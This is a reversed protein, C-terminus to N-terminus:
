RIIAMPANTTQFRSVLRLGGLHGSSLDLVGGHREAIKEMIALGLGSSNPREEDQLAFRRFTPTGEGLLQSPLGPGGDEITLEVGNPLQRVSVEVPSNSPTYKIINSIANNCYVKLLEPSLAARQSQEDIFQISRQPNLERLNALVPEIIERVFISSIEFDKIEGLRALQLLDDILKQMSLSSETAREVARRDQASDLNPSKALIELYGRIVTLPTRLEHSADSVFAQLEAKSNQLKEVMSALSDALVRIEDSANGASLRANEGQAVRSATATLASLERLDKRILRWGVAGSGTAALMVFLAVLAISLRMSDSIESTSVQFILIEGFGLNLKAQISGPRDLAGGADQLVTLTGDNEQYVLTVEQSKLLDMAVSVKDQSTSKVKAVTANLRSRATAMEANYNIALVGAGVLLSAVASTVGLTFVSKVSLKM